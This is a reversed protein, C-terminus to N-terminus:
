EIIREPQNMGGVNPGCYELVLKDSRVDYRAFVMNMPNDTMPWEDTTERVFRGAPDHPSAAQFWVRIDDRDRPRNVEKRFAYERHWKELSGVCPERALRGEIQDVSASSPKAHNGCSSLLITALVFTYGPRM